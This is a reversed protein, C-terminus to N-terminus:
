QVYKQDYKSSVCVSVSHTQDLFGLGEALDPKSLNMLLITNLPSTTTRDTVAKTSIDVMVAIVTRVSSLEPTTTINGM